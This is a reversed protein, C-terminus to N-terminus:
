DDEVYVGYKLTYSGVNGGQEVEFYYETNAELEYTIGDGDDGSGSELQEMSSNYLKLYFWVNDSVNSLEFRYKDSKSPTYKYLNKQSTFQTSDNISEYESIDVLPKQSGINLTYSGVNGGQEVEFFYKSNAELKYTIGDGNDGSGSELQEMSSNYLKFYFWINQPINSLEFRYTGAESSTFEYINKQNTFQTSDSISTYESVDLVPKQSGINLTYSGTNGGQEVEFFYKSDAELEYTIGDGNDGSGSKLQEMSSNYLKFYFWVNQPINSLEFRYTGPEVSTFEYTKTEKENSIKDSIQEIEIKDVSTKNEKNSSISISTPKTEETNAVVVESTDSNNDNKKTANDSPVLDNGDNTSITTKVDNITDTQENSNANDVISKDSKNQQSIVIGGIVAIALAGLAFSTIITKKNGSSSVVRPKNLANNYISTQKLNLSNPNPVVCDWMLASIFYQTIRSATDIGLGSDNCLSQFLNNIANQQQEDSKASVIYRISPSSFAFSVLDTETRDYPYLKRLTKSCFKPDNLVSIGNEQLISRLASIISNNSM